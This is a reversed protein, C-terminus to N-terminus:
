SGVIQDTGEWVFEGVPLHKNCGCCFTAGYFKPDRAYTEAIAQGMKTSTGCGGVRKNSNWSDLEEQTVYPGGGFSGDEKEIVTMVAVYKGFYEDSEDLMRHIKKWHSRVDKGIHVYSDRYPRIFGKAREEESLVLYCANQGEEKRGSQLCPDNPDTTLGM